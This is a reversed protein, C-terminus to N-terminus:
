FDLAMSFNKLKEIQDAEGIAKTTQRLRPERPDSPRALKM